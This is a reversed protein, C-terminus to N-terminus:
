HRVIFRRSDNTQGNEFQIFYVGNSLSQTDMSVKNGNQTTNLKIEQGLSNYVTFRYDEVSDMEIHLVNDSPVPYLTVNLRSNEAVGLAQNIVVTHNLDNYGTTSEWMANNAFRVAYEPRNAISSDIDPMHLYMKYSGPVIDAPLPLNETITKTGLWLRPNANMVIPYTQNTVTNKLVVYIYRENFPASFGINTLNFSVSLQSNATIQTPLTANNLEFRYGLRNQIESFCENTQWGSIVNPHYDLNLYSWHFRNMEQLATTCNTRSEFVACTEGGMPLYKTEQELYPYETAVNSYTGVDSNSSLFCDNHHGIRALTSNSHAQGTPLPTTTNYLQQKFKPTRIQVARTSPIAALFADIVNKRNTYNTSTLSTTSNYGYGGFDAQSTYYWEGWTGIFGAQFTSIVDTNAILVPKLQNIHALITSKSADRPSASEDDSYAFRVICKIGAIRMRNFDTQMNNLYTQSIASNVFDELYFVRLILTIKQNQRYNTLTSQTLLHYDTSHTETHKYFGREPNSFLETSASYSKTTTQANAVICLLVSLFTFLTRM